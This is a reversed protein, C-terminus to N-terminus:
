AASRRLRAPLGLLAVIVWPLAAAGGAAGCGCGGGTSGAPDREVQCSADCGDGGVANADDCAEVGARVFGDGCSALACTSLCGDTDVANGDDCAEVGAQVLGDGCRALVCTSLCGDTDVANGDDCQEGTVNVVGDGCVPVVEFAGHEYGAGQPRAVGDFDRTARVTTAPSDVCPSAARIRLNAPAAVYLPDASIVGAGAAAIGSFDRGNGWVDTVTISGVAGPTASVGTGNGTIICREASLNLSGAATLTAGLGTGANGHITTHWARLLTNGDTNTALLGNANEAVVGNVLSLSADDVVAAAGSAHRIEVSDLALVAGGSARVGTTGYEIRGDQVVALPSTATSRFDIATSASSVAFHTLQIGTSSPLFTIGGNDTGLISVPSATSGNARLTGGIRLEVRYRDAGGRMVDSVGGSGGMLLTAGPAITMTRGPPITVDGDIPHTGAALALDQDWWTGYLGPTTAGAWPLAGLSGGTKGAFRCPSRHTLHLDTESAFLPNESLTATKFISPLTGGDVYDFGGTSNWVDSYQVTVVAPDQGTEIGQYNNAVISDVLAVRAEATSGSYALIADGGQRVFTSGTVTANVAGTLAHAVLGAPNGDFVSGQITVYLTGSSAPAVELGYTGNGAFTTRTIVPSGARIMIGDVNTRFTSDTVDVAGTGAVDLGFVAHEVVAGTLTAGGAGVTQLGGWAGAAPTASSSQFTVSTSTSSTSTGYAFLTGAVILKKGADFRVVCGAQFALLVGPAVTVDASVVYPNGAPGYSTHTSISSPLVTARAATAAALVTVVALVKLRM